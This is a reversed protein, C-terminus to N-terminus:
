KKIRKGVHNKLRDELKLVIDVFETYSAIDGTVSRKIYHTTYELIIYHIIKDNLETYDKLSKQLRKQFDPHKEFIIM